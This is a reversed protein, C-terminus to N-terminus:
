VEKLYYSCGSVDIRIALRSYLWNMMRVHIRAAEAATYISCERFDAETEELTRLLTNARPCLDNIIVWAKGYALITRRFDTMQETYANM